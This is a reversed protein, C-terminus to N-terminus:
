VWGNGDDTLVKVKQGIKVQQLQDGTIYARLIITSIDAIKYMPRVWFLWKMSSWM